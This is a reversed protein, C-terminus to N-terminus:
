RPHAAPAPIGIAHAYQVGATVCRGGHELREHMHRSEQGFASVEQHRKIYRIDRTIFREDWRQRLGSMDRTLMTLWSGNENSGRRNPGNVLDDDCVASRGFATAQRYGRAGEVLGLRIFLFTQLWALVDALHWPEEAHEM